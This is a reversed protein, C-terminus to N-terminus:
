YRNKKSLLVTSITDDYGAFHRGNLNFGNIVDEPTSEYVLQRLGESTRCLIKCNDHGTRIVNQMIKFKPKALLANLVVDYKGLDYTGGDGVHVKMNDSLGLKKFVEESTQASNEDLELCDVKKGTMQHYLIATIPFPGSGIFVVSDYDHGNLLDIEKSLLRQFREYLLYEEIKVEPDTLIQDAFQNEIETEWFCYGDNLLKLTDMPIKSMYKSSFVDNEDEVSFILEELRRVKSDIQEFNDGHWVPSDIIESIESEIHTIRDLDLQTKIM